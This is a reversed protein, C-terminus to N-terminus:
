VVEKMCGECAHIFAAIWSSGMNWSCAELEAYPEILSASYAAVDWEWLGVGGVFGRLSPLPENM